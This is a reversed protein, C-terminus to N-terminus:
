SFKGLAEQLIGDVLVGYAKETPHFSDWFVLKSDDPCLVTKRNCLPGLEFEGTGCCGNKSEEFGYKSPYQILDLLPHYIDAYVINSGALKKQLIQSITSLKLNYDESVQNYLSVCDRQEGGARTRLNPVCGLPPLGAVLIKRAGLSYLDQIFSSASDVLFSTYSPIDYEASRLTGGFYNNAYDNSGSCVFYLSERIIMEAREPETVAELKQKYDKFLELQHQISIVSLLESTLRDYGSSGSAFSVGTLIDENSLNPNLFAPLLEKIGLKSAVFDSPVKGNSFRGTPEHGILDKGYPPFNCKAITPLLNNNGTDLISDGFAFLAPYKSSTGNGGACVSVFCVCGLVSVLSARMPSFHM